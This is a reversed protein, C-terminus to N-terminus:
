PKILGQTLVVLCLQKIVKRSHVSGRLRALLYRKRPPLSGLDLLSIGGPTGSGNLHLNALFANKHLPVRDRVFRGLIGSDRDFM